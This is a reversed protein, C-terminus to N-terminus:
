SFVGMKDSGMARLVRASKDWSAICQIGAPIHYFGKRNKGKARKKMPSM